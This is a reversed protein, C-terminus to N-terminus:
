SSHRLKEEAPLRCQTGCLHLRWSPPPRSQVCGAQSRTRSSTPVRPLSSGPRGGAGGRSSGCGGGRERCRRRLCVAPPARPAPPAPLRLAPRPARPPRSPAGGVGPGLGARAGPGDPRASVRRAPRGPLRGHEDRLPAPRPGRRDGAAAWTRGRPRAPRQAASSPVRRGPLPAGPAPFAAPGPRPSGVACQPWPRRRRIRGVGPESLHSGLAAPGMGPVGLACGGPVPLESRGRAARGIRAWFTRRSRDSEGRWAAGAAGPGSGAAGQPM